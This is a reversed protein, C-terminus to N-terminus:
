GVEEIDFAILQKICFFIKEGRSNKGIAIKAKARYEAGSWESFRFEIDMVCMTTATGSEVFVRFAREQDASPRLTFSLQLSYQEISYKEDRHFIPANQDHRFMDSEASFRVRVKEVYIGPGPYEFDSPWNFDITFAATALNKKQRAKKENCEVMLVSCLEDEVLRIEKNSSLQKRFFVHYDCLKEKKGKDLLECIPTVAVLVPITASLLPIAIDGVLAKIDEWLSEPTQITTSWIKSPESTGNAINEQVSFVMVQSPAESSLVLDKIQWMITPVTLLVLLTVALAILIGRILWPNSSPHKKKRGKM